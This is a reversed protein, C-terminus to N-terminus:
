ASASILTPAPLCRGCCGPGVTAHLTVGGAVLALVPASYALQRGLRGLLRRRKDDHQSM